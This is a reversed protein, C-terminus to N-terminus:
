KIQFKKAKFVGDVLDVDVKYPGRADFDDGVMSLGKVGRSVTFKEPYAESWFITAKSAKIAFSQDMNKLSIVGQTFNLNFDVAHPITVTCKNQGRLAFKLTKNDISVPSYSADNTKCDFIFTKDGSIFNLVSNSANIDIKKFENIDISGQQEFGLGKLEHGGNYESSFTIKFDGASIADDSFDFSNVFGTFFTVVKYVILVILLLITIFIYFLFSRKKSKILPLGRQILFPNILAIVDRNQLLRKGLGESGGKLLYDRLERVVDSRDIPSLHDLKRECRALFRDLRERDEVSLNIDTEM